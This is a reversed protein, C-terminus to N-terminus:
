LFKTRSTSCFEPRVYNMGDQAPAHPLLVATCHTCMESKVAIYRYTSVAEVGVGGWHVTHEMNWLGSNSAPSVRFYKYIWGWFGTKKNETSHSLTLNPLFAHTPPTFRNTWSHLQSWGPLQAARGCDGAPLPPPLRGGSPDAPTPLLLLLASKVSFQVLDDATTCLWGPWFWHFITFKYWFLILTFLSSSVFHKSTPLRAWTKGFRALLIVNTSLIKLLTRYVGAALSLFTSPENLCTKLRFYYPMNEFSIIRRM